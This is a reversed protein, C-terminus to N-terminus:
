ACLSNAENRLATAALFTAAEPLCILKAGDCAARNIMPLLTALTEEATGAACYQLAAVALPSRAASM